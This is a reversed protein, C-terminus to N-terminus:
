QGVHWVPPFSSASRASERKSRSSQGLVASPNPYSIWGCIGCISTLVVQMLLHTMLEVQSSGRIWGSVRITSVTIQRIQRIQTIQPRVIQVGARDEIVM